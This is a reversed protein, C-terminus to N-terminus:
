ANTLEHPQRGWPLKWQIRQWYTRLLSPPLPALVHVVTGKEPISRITLTASISDARKGMGRIGFGSSESTVLFGVGDDEVILEVTTRHYIVSVSITTPHAHRVANAIAEQGIRLLTDAIYLPLVREPGSIMTKVAISLNGSIMRKACDELARLLGMSQLHDPRLAAISRRAEEHSKRVMDRAVNLQSQISSGEAVEDYIAELQFGLGAFSQALTDHMEHALRGREELVAQLRWREMLIYVILGVLGLILSGIILAVIHGASWWPPGEIVEVDNFSPLLIAFPTLKHTYTPDVVCVGRLRLRSRNNLNRLRAASGNQSAIALFSQNEDDLTLILAGGSDAHKEVLRGQIDVFGADFAGGAAQSATVSIPQVPTHSWLMRVSANRLVPSFEHLEADGKAEIEDGIELPVQAYGGPVALGGTSDQVFMIPFTLTVVGHITVPNLTNPSLLRLSSIPRANLDTRHQLLDRHIPEFFRDSTAPDAGAPSQEPVAVPPRTDGIMAILDQRTASRVEVNRWQAGTNYSKLGFRGSSICDPDEVAASSTQGSPARTSVALICDYALFRLHYWQQDYVRPSISKDVFLRWGYDARGLFLANDLDSLGATYGHYADVGEEEDRSRVVLGAFGYTGLLMVDAQVMYNAAAESGNMLMAGREDSNNRMVGNVFQWAGGFPQWDDRREVAFNSSHDSGYHSFQHYVLVGAIGILLSTMVGVKAIAVSHKSLFKKM